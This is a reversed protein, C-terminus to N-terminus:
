STVSRDSARVLSLAFPIFCACAFASVLYANRDNGAFFATGVLPGLTGGVDGAVQLVGIASGRREPLVFAALMALLSPGLAAVALGILALGVLVLTVDHAFAVIVLAPVFLVVGGTAIRAHARFRDGLRGIFPTTLGEVIVMFGMLLGATGKEAFHGISLHRREVLLVLTTLVMGGASFSAVLNLAGIAALKRNALEHWVNMLSARRVQGGKARLDPILRHALFLAFLIAVAAAAFTATEGVADALLGGSVLGIPVGVAMAARVTGAASGAHLAGGANLALTQAAVFICASGPGHLIRGLLFFIGPHGTVIGLAYFIMVVVQIVLGILLTRRGGRADVFAGIAPNSIVRAARNAALIVGIFALPLHAREGAHPLIPFAIGGAVGALLVGPAIALAV